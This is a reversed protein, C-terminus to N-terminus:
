INWTLKLYDVPTLYEFIEFLIDEPINPFACSMEKKAIESWYLISASNKKM